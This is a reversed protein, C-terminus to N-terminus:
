QLSTCGVSSLRQLESGWLLQSRGRARRSKAMEDDIAAEDCYRARAAAGDMQLVVTLDPVRRAKMLLGVLDM